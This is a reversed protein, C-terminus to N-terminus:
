CKNQRQLNEVIDKIYFIFFTLVYSFYYMGPYPDRFNMSRLSPYLLSCDYFKGSIIWSEKNKEPNSFIDEQKLGYEELIKELNLFKTKYYAILGKEM